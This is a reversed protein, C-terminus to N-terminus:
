SRKWPSSVHRIMNQGIICVIITPIVGATEPRCSLTISYVAAASWLIIKAFNAAILLLCWNMWRRICSLHRRQRPLLQGLTIGALMLLFATGAFSHIPLPYPRAHPPKSRNILPSRVALLRQRRRHQKAHICRCGRPVQREM